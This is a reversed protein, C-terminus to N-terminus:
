FKSILIKTRVFHEKEALLADLRINLGWTSPPGGRGEPLLIM